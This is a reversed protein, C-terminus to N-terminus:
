NNAIPIQQPQQTQPKSFSLQLIGNEFSAQSKSPDVAFPLTFRRLGRSNIQRQVVTGDEEAATGRVTVRDRIAEVELQDEDYGPAQLYINAGTDTVKIHAQDGNSWTEVDYFRNAVRQLSRVDNVFSQAYHTNFRPFFMHHEKHNKNKDTFFSDDHWHM